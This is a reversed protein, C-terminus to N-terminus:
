KISLIKKLCFKSNDFRNLFMPNMQNFNNNKTSENFLQNNPFINLGFNYFINSNNVLIPYDSKDISQKQSYNTKKAFNTEKCENDLILFKILVKLNLVQLIM